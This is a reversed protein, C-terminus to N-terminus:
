GLKSHKTKAAVLEVFRTYDAESSFATKPLWHFALKQPYLLVGEPTIVSRVFHSWQNDASSDPANVKVRDEHIVYKISKGNASSSQISRAFGFRMMWGMAIVLALPALPVWVMSPDLPLNVDDKPVSLLLVFMVLSIAGVIKLGRNFSRNHWRLGPLMGDVNFITSATIEESM